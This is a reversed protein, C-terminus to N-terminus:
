TRIPLMQMMQINVYNGFTNSKFGALFHGSTYQKLGLLIQRARSEEAFCDRSIHLSSSQLRQAVIGKSLCTSKLGIWIGIETGVWVRLLADLQRRILNLSRQTQPCTCSARRIFVLQSPLSPRLSIRNSPWPRCSRHSIAIYNSDLVSHLTLLSIFFMFFSLLPVELMPITCM